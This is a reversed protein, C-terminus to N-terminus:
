EETNQIRYESHKEEVLSAVLRELVAIRADQGISLVIRRRVAAGPAVQLANLSYASSTLETRPELEQEEGVAIGLWYPRDFPLDLPTQSGLIVSFLGSCVTLEQEERWLAAGGSPADHLSFIISYPGDPAPNDQADTLIGQYSLTQPIQSWGAQAALLLSLMSLLLTRKM